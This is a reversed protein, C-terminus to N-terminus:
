TWSCRSRAPGDHHGRGEDAPARGQGRDRHRHGPHLQRQVAGPGALLDREGLLRVDAHRHLLHLGQRRAPAPPDRDGGQLRRRLLGELLVRQRHRRDRSGVCQIFRSTARRSAPRRGSSATSRSCRRPTPCPSSTPTSTTATCRPRAARSRLAPLRHRRRDRRGVETSEGAPGALTVRFDGVSGSCATM